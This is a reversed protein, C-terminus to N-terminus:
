QKKPKRFLDLLGPPQNTTPQNTSTASPQNTNTATKRGGFLNGVAELAGGVKEGTAGGIGKVVSGGAKAALVLLATKHIDTEQKGLTGKMTLFQPMPVYVANTPTDATVLGIKEGMARSLLVSVPFHITSNTLIPALTINGNALVQFAASRVEAQDLTVRGDGAKGSALIVDIPAATLQDAWGSREGGGALKGLTAAPNRILDPIGVIVNIISNILPSRVNTISLNMNTSLFSFSGALNKQLSAGTVGAGKLQATATTTGSVQGKRDPVFSNVLPALPIANANFAVDYKYGAVGLDLDVTANVPAGNLTLQCPKVVAHGGDLKVITQLKEIDVEHLYFRGITADFTFNQFPLKV